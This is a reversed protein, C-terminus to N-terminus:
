SDGHIDGKPDIIDIMKNVTEVLDMESNDILVADEVQILPGIKRSRDGEDRHRLTEIIDVESLHKEHEGLDQLRRKARAELSATIFFKHSADPFVVSGIDRGDMVVSDEKAAEHLFGTVWERIVPNGSIPLIHDTVNQTRIEESVDEGRMLVCCGLGSESQVLKIQLNDLATFLDDQNLKFGNLSALTICRYVAGSDLYLYDLRRALHKAASSKGSVAPGDIAIQDFTM